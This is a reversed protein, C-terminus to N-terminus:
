RRSALESTGDSKRRSGFSNMLKMKRLYEKFFGLNKRLEEQDVNLSSILMKIREQIDEELMQGDVYCVPQPYENEWDLFDM